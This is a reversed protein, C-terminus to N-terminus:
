DDSRNYPNYGGSPRTNEERHLSDEDQLSLSDLNLHDLLDIPKDDERRRLVDARMQLVPDGKVDFSVSCVPEVTGEEAEPDRRNPGRYSPTVVKINSRNHRDLLEEILANKKDTVM